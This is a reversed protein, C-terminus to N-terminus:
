YYIDKDAVVKGDVRITYGASTGKEIALPISITKDDTITYTQIASTGSNDKDRVYVQVKQGKDDEGTYPITYTENYNKVDATNKSDDSKEQSDNKKNDEKDKSDKSDEKDVNDKNDKKDEKGKSVTFHITSGEEVQTSKPTQSIIKDKKIDDSYEESIEVKLKNKKLEKKATQYDENEYNKVYVKKVGLSETLVIHHDNVKVDSDPNVNQRLISGKPMQNSYEQEISINNLKLEKLKNIADDKKMGIVNPMKAREPGKSLIIDVKDHQNIREGAKPTSKMIKNEPYTDSYERSIKGIELHSKRLIKEAEKETKGTLDPMESYKDGFMGMAIFGFLSVLLFLLILVIAFKKKKSRKKRPPEYVHNESTQFQHENVIPIQMTQAINKKADEEKLKDKIENKDIPVTKKEDSELTHKEENIRSSVLVSSLDERMDRISQYRHEPNKATAKLVVNSLSQPVDERQDTVNPVSEQIHKIAISVATEGSFPPHGILMEYLVIGISYIDTTENTTEGKAQEPSLYQVTGLVHNTQTMSTESLAKAIGFDFIKLTKNKDILINQPKIDRHVIRKEHAQQVGQLIQEIFNIATDISLPGHSHIYESLTPGDIYEMILFFCEEEEDVDYVEVINNHILQTANNVEREFRRMTEDKENQSISIAKIAVKRHLITDEALYVISMGGGGLKDLVKYRESILKGIM